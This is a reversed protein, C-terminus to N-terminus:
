ENPEGTAYKAASERLRQFATDHAVMEGRNAQEIGTRVKAAFEEGSVLRKIGESVVEEISAFRGIEVLQEAAIQDSPPLQINMHFRQTQISKVPLSIQIKRM